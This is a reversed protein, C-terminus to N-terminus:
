YNADQQLRKKKEEPTENKEGALLMIQYLRSEIHALLTNRIYANIYTQMQDNDVFQFDAFKITKETDNELNDLFEENYKVLVERAKMEIYGKEVDLEKLAVSMRLDIIENIPENGTITPLFVKRILSVSDKIIGMLAEDNRDTEIQLFKKRLVVLLDHRDSFTNQLLSLEQDSFRLPRKKPAKEVM